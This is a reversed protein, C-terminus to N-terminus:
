ALWGAKVRRKRSAIQERALADFIDALQELDMAERALARKGIEVARRRLATGVTLNAIIEEDGEIIDLPAVDDTPAPRGGLYDITWTGVTAPRTLLLSQGWWRWAQAAPTLREGGLPREGIQRPVVNGNPDTVRAIQISDIAPAVPLSVAPAVAAVTVTRVAPFRTGYRRVSEAIYENLTADDWLPGLNNDTLMARARTRMELRTTM